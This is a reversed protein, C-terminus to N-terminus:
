CSAAVPCGWTNLHPKKLLSQSRFFTLSCIKSPRIEHPLRSAGFLIFVVRHHADMLGASPLCSVLDCTGTWGPSHLSIEALMLLVRDWLCCFNKQKILSSSLGPLLSLGGIVTDHNLGKNKTNQNRNTVLFIPCHFLWLPIHEGVFWRNPLGELSLLQERGCKFPFLYKSLRAETASSWFFFLSPHVIYTQM